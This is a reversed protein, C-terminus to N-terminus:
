QFTRTRTHTHTDSLAIKRLDTQTHTCTHSLAIIPPDTRTHVHTLFPSIAREHSPTRTQTPSISDSLLCFLRQHVSAYAVSISSPQVCPVATGNLPQHSTDAHAHMRTLSESFLNALIVCFAMNLAPPLRQAIAINNSPIRAHTRLAHTQIKIRKLEIDKKSVEHLM